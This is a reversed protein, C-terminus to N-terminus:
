QLKEPYYEECFHYYDRRILEHCAEHFKTNNIAEIDRGKTFVFFGVNPINLGNVDGQFEGEKLWNAHIRDQPEPEVVDKVEDLFYYEFILGTASVNLMFFLFLLVVMEIFDRRKM